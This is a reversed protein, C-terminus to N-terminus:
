LAGLYLTNGRVLGHAGKAIGTPPSTPATDLNISLAFLGFWGSSMGGGTVLDHGGGICVLSSLTCVGVAASLVGFTSGSSSSLASGFAMLNLDLLDWGKGLFARQLSPLTFGLQYGAGAALSVPHPNGPRVEMLPLTPGSSVLVSEARAPAPALLGIGLALVLLKLPPPVVVKGPEKGLLDYLNPLLALLKDAVKYVITGPSAVGQVLHALATLVGLALLTNQLNMWSPM